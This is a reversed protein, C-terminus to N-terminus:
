GTTRAPNSTVIQAGFTNHKITPNKFDDLTISKKVNLHPDYVTDRTPARFKSSEAAANGNQQAVLRLRRIYDSADIPM